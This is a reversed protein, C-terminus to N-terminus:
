TSQPQPPTPQSARERQIAELAENPSDKQNREEISLLPALDEESWLMPANDSEGVRMTPTIGERNIARLFQFYSKKCRIAAQQTTM